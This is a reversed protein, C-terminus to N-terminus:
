QHTHLPGEMIKRARRRDDRVEENHTNTQQGIRKVLQRYENLEQAARDLQQALRGQSQQVSSVVNGFEDVRQLYAATRRAIEEQKGQIRADLEELTKIGQAADVGDINQQYVRSLRAAEEAGERKRRHEETWRELEQREKSLTAWFEEEKRYKKELQEKVSPVVSKRPPSVLRPSKQAKSARRRYRDHPPNVTPDERDTAPTLAAM